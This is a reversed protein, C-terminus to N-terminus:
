YAYLYRGGRGDENFDSIKVGPVFTLAEAVSYSGDPNRQQTTVQVVCGVGEIELNKEFGKTVGQVMNALIARATGHYSRQFCDNGRREVSVKDTEVTLSVDKRFAFSLKGKPGEVRVRTYLGEDSQSVKVGAPIEVPQKGIRSM